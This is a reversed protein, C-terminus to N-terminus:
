SSSTPRPDRPLEIRDTSESLRGAQGAGIRGPSETKDPGEEVPDDSSILFATLRDTRYPKWVQVGLAPVLHVSCRDCGRGISALGSRALGVENRDVFLVALIGVIALYSGSGLDPQAVMLMAPLLALLM